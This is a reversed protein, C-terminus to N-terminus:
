CITERVAVANRVFWARGHRDWVYRLLVEDALPLGNGVCCKGASTERETSTRRGTVSAFGM